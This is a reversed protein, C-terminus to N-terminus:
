KYKKGWPNHMIFSLTIGGDEYFNEETRGADNWADYGVSKQIAKTEVNQLNRYGDEGLRKKMQKPEKNYHWAVITRDNYTPDEAYDIFSKKDFKVTIGTGKLLPKIDEKFFKNILEARDRATVKYFKNDFKIKTDTSHSTWGGPQTSLYKRLQTKLKNQRKPVNRRRQRKEKEPRLTM